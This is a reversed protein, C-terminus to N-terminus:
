LLKRMQNDYMFIEMKMVRPLFTPNYLNKHSASTINNKISIGFLYYLIFFM